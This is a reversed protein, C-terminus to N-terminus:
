FLFLPVTQGVQYTIAATSSNLQFVIYDFGPNEPPSTIIPTVFNWAGNISTLTSPVVSGTPVLLTVQGSSTLNFPSTYTVNSRLSVQYGDCSALREVTLEVQAQALQIILLFGLALWVKINKM